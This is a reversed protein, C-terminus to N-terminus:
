LSFTLLRYVYREVTEFIVIDSDYDKYSGSEYYNIHQYTTTSFNLAVPLIMGDGFSDHLFYANKGECESTYQTLWQSIDNKKVTGSYFDNRLVYVNREEILGNMNAMIALDYGSDDVIHTFDEEKFDFIDYGLEKLLENAGISAGVANWHTDTNYWIPISLTQKANMLADYAYVVHVSTHTKLYDVIQLVPYVDAPLGYVSPMYEFYVREKNPAIFLVFEKGESELKRQMAVCNNAITELEMQTLLIKGRYTSITKEEENNYFLWDKKGLIVNHLVTQGCINKDIMTQLRIMLNRFPLHDNYFSELKSSYNAYDKVSFEPFSTLERNEGSDSSFFGHLFPWCLWPLCLLVAFASLYTIKTHKKM